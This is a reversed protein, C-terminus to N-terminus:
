FYLGHLLVGAFYLILLHVPYFVYAFLGLKRGREGNYRTIFFFAIWTITGFFAGNLLISAALGITILEKPRFRFLYMVLIFLYGTVGYDTGSIWTAAAGLLLIVGAKLVDPVSPQGQEPKLCSMAATIAVFGFLWGWVTNQQAPSYIRGTALLDYPIEAALALLFLRLGYSVTDKTHLIGLVLLFAFLPFAMRGVSRMALYIEESGPFPPLSGRIFLAVALHDVVMTGMAILKIDSASFERM